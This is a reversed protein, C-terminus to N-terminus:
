FKDIVVEHRRLDLRRKGSSTEVTVSVPRDSANVAVFCTKGDMRM